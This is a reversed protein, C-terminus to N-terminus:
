PLGDRDEGPQALDVGVEDAARALLHLAGEVAEAVTKKLEAM